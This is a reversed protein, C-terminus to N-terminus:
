FTGTSVVTHDINGPVFVHRSQSRAFDVVPDNETFTDIVIDGVARVVRGSEDFADVGRLVRYMPSDLSFMAAQTAGVWASASAGRYAKYAVGPSFSAVFAPAIMGPARYQAMVYLGHANRLRSPMMQQALLQNAQNADLQARVNTDTSFANIWSQGLIVVLNTTPSGKALLQALMAEFASDITATTTFNPTLSNAADRGFDIDLDLDSGGVGKANFSGTFIVDLAQKWKTMNHGAVHQKVIDQMLKAHHATYGSTAELGAIIADRLEENIPTKESTRPVEYISGTGPSYERVISQNNPDRYTVGYPDDILRDLSFAATTDEDPNSFLVKDIGNTEQARFQEYYAKLGRTLVELGAAM